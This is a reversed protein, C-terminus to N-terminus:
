YLCSVNIGEGYIELIEHEHNKSDSLSAASAQRRSSKSVLCWAEFCTATEIDWASVESYKSETVAVVAKDVKSKNAEQSYRVLSRIRAGKPHRWSNLLIGNRLDWVFFFGRSTAVALWTGEESICMSTPVGYQPKISWVWIVNETRLDNVIVKGTTLCYILLSENEIKDQTDMFSSSNTGRNIHLLDTAYGAEVKISRWTSFGEYKLSSGLNLVDIRDSNYLLLM